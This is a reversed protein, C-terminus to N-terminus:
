LKKSENIIEAIRNMIINSNGSANIIAEAFGINDSSKSFNKRQTKPLFESSLIELIERWTYLGCAKSVGAGIFPVIADRHECLYDLRNKNQRLQLLESLLM